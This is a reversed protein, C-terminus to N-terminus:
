YVKAWSMVRHYPDDLLSFVAIRPHLTKASHDGRVEAVYLRLREYVSMSIIHLRVKTWPLASYLGGWFHGGWNSSECSRWRWHIWAGLYFVSTINIIFHFWSPVLDAFVSFHLQNCFSLGTTIAAARWRNTQRSPSIVVTGALSLISVVSKDHTRRSM